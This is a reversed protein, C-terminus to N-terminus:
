RRRHRSALVRLLDQRQVEIRMSKSGSSYSEDCANNGGGTQDIERYAAGSGFENKYVYVVAAASAVIAFSACAALVAM